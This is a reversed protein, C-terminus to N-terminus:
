YQKKIAIEKNLDSIQKKYLDILEMVQLPSLEKELIDGNEYEKQLDLKKQEEKIDLTQKFVEKKKLTTNNSINEEVLVKVNNKGNKLKTFFEKIKNLIKNM